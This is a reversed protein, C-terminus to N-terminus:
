QGFGHHLEGEQGRDSLIPPSHPVLSSPTVEALAPLLGGPQIPYIQLEKVCGPRIGAELPRQDITGCEHYILIDSPDPTVSYKFPDLNLSHQTKTTSM